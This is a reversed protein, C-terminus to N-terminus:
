PTKDVAKGFGLKAKLRSWQLESYRKLFVQYDVLYRRWLRRPEKFLRYLFRLNLRDIWVPYYTTGASVQDLFGGCTFGIGRWGTAVLRLLFEEQLPAGMGCIVLDPPNGSIFETADDPDQGYGSYCATIQLGRYKERLMRAAQESVGPKGGVLSISHGNLVAASFVEGALSTFDFSERRVKKLGSAHAAKVMGIGDCAIIDLEALTGVYDPHELSLACAVPNVFTILLCRHPDKASFRDHVPGIGIPSVPIGLVSIKTDPDQLIM